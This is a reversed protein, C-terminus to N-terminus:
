KIPRNHVIVTNMNAADICVDSWAENPLRESFILRKTM